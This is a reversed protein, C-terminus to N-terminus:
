ATEVEATMEAALKQLGLRIRSKATGESAGTTAAVERFTLGNFYALEIAERQADPLGAVAARVKGASLLLLAADEPEPVRPPADRGARQENAMRRGQRRLHDICRRRAITVLFAALSGLRIDFGEPREWLRVFVEQCVDAATDHGVLRTAVGHVLSGYRQYAQALASDDGVAIRAVIARDWSGGEAPVALFSVEGAAPSAAPSLVATSVTV